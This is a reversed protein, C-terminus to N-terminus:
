VAPEPADDDDVAAAYEAALEATGEPDAAAEAAIEEAQEPHLLMAAVVYERVARPDTM